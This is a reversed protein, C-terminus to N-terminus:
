VLLSQYEYIDRKSSSAIRTRSHCKYKNHSLDLSILGTNKKLFTAIVGGSARTIKNSALSLYALSTNNAISPLLIALGADGLDTSSLIKAGWFGLWALGLWALGLWALLSCTLM